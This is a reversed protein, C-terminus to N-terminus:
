VKRKQLKEQLIKWLNFNYFTSDFTVERGLFSPYSFSQDQNDLEAEILILPMLGENNFIDSLFINQYVNIEFIQTNFPVFYRQKIMWNKLNKYRSDALKFEYEDRCLFELSKITITPNTDNVLRIRTTPNFYYDKINVKNQKYLINNYLDTLSLTPCLLFKREIEKNM